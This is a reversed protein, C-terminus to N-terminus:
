KSPLLESSDRPPVAPPVVDFSFYRPNQLLVTADVRDIETFQFMAMWILLGQVNYLENELEQGEFNSQRRRSSSASNGLPMNRGFTRIAFSTLYLNQHSKGSATQHSSPSPLSRLRFRTRSVQLPAVPSSPVFDNEQFLGKWNQRIDSIRDRGM